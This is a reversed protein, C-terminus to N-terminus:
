AFARAAIDRRYHAGEFGIKAVAEYAAQRASAIDAGKATVGLVRGGNTVFQGDRLATGAHFVQVADSGKVAELGSIPKGKEYKGPYGASAMVVCVAAGPEWDLEVEALRREVTAMLIPVLDSKMLLIVPQTEPDGFRCNFELVAPGSPTIMLGAYIVGRYDRNEHNLAHVAPVLVKQEIERTLAPTVLPAPAYAGMGGTNPGRNGDKARKHDQATLMPVVTRGDTFAIISAEAGTLREEIIVRDGAAGFQKDRMVADIAEHAEQATSTVIVGKGAALGDAKVVVPAPSADVYHHAAALSDFVRSSPTPIGHRYMLRKAFVKSGEIEAGKRSPGFVKLGSEEFADAIGMTLPIEPGVVTLDIRQERAFRQLAPIDEAGIDVCEAVEAMGANGPAAYLKEVLPSSAIKWALAHERGGSGVVLIRM